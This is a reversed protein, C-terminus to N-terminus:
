EKTTYCKGNPDLWVFRFWAYGDQYYKYKFLKVPIWAFKKVRM